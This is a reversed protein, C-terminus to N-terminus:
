IPSDTIPNHTPIFMGFGGFRRMNAHGKDCNDMTKDCGNYIAVLDGPQFWNGIPNITRIVFNNNAVPSVYKIQFKRGSIAIPRDVGGADMEGVDLVKAIWGRNIKWPLDADMDALIQPCTSIALQNQTPDTVPPDGIECLHYEDKDTSACNCDGYIWGCLTTLRLGGPVSEFRKKLGEFEVEAILTNGQYRSTVKTIYGTYVHRLTSDGPQHDYINVQVESWTGTAMKDIPHTAIPLRIKVPNSDAGVSMASGMDIEISPEAAFEVSGVSTSIIANSDSRAYRASSFFFRSSLGARRNRYITEGADVGFVEEPDPNKESVPELSFYYTQEDWLFEILPVFQTATNEFDTNLLGDLPTM